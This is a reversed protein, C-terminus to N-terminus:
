GNVKAVFEIKAQYTKVVKKFYLSSELSGIFLGKNTVHSEPLWISVRNHCIKPFCRGFGMQEVFVRLFCKRDNEMHFFLNM